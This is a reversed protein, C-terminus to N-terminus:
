ESNWIIGILYINPHYYWILFYKVCFLQHILYVNILERLIQHMITVSKRVSKIVILTNVNLWTQGGFLQRLIVNSSGKSTVSQWLIPQHHSWPRTPNKCLYCILTLHMWSKIIVYACINAVYSVMIMGDDSFEYIREFAITDGTKSKTVFKNDGEM